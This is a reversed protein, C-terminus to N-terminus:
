ELTSPPAWPTMATLFVLMTNPLNLDRDLKLKLKWSRMSVIRCEPLSRPIPVSSALPQGAFDGSGGFGPLAPNPLSWQPSATRM